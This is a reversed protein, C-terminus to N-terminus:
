KGNMLRSGTSLRAVIEDGELEGTEVFGLSAYLRHAVANDPHYSLAIESCNPKRRLWEILSQVSARGIGRGQSARDVVVGGLWHSGDAPDVAWMAFGVMEEDLYLGLPRWGQEGYCCLALYYATDAVFREQGPAHRIRTCARWNDGTVERVVVKVFCSVVASFRPLM